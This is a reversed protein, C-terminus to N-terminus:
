ALFALASIFLVSVPIAVGLGITLSKDSSSDGSSPASTQFIETSTSAYTMKTLTPLINSSTTSLASPM